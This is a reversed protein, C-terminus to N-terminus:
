ICYEGGWMCYECPKISLVDINNISSVINKLNDYLINGVKLENHKDIDYSVEPCAMVSGDCQITLMKGILTCEYNRKEVDETYRELFSGRSNKILDSSSNVYFHLRTNKYTCVIKSKNRFESDPNFINVIEINRSMSDIKSLVGVIGSDEYDNIRINDYIGLYGNYKEEFNTLIYDGNTVIDIQINKFNLKDKLINGYKFHLEMDALPENFDFLQLIINETFLDLNNNINEIIKYISDIPMCIKNSIDNRNLVPIICFECDRNCYNTIGIKIIEIKSM